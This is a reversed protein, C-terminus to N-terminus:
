CVLKERNNVCMIWKVSSLNELSFHNLSAPGCVFGPDTSLDRYSWSSFKWLCLHGVSCVKPPLKSGWAFPKRHIAHTKLNAINSDFSRLIRSITPMSINNQFIHRCVWFRNHALGALPESWQPSFHVRFMMKPVSHYYHMFICLLAYIYVNVNTHQKSDPM